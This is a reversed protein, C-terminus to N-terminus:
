FSSLEGAHHGSLEGITPILVDRHKRRRIRGNGRAYRAAFHKVADVFVERVEDSTGGVELGACLGPQGGRALEAPILAPTIKLEADALVSHARDGEARGLM